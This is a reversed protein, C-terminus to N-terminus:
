LNAIYSRLRKVENKRMKIFMEETLPQGKPLYQSIMEPTSSSLLTEAKDIYHIAQQNKGRQVFLGAINILIDIQEVINQQREYLELADLSVSLLGSLDKNPSADFLLLEKQFKCPYPDLGAKELITIAQDMLNRANEFEGNFKAKLARRMLEDAILKVRPEESM